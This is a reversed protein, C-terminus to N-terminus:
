NGGLAVAVSVLGENLVATAYLFRIGPLAPHFATGCLAAPNTLEYQGPFRPASRNSMDAKFLAEKITWLRLLHFNKKLKSRREIWDLESQQLFFRASRPNVERRAEFDVGTGLHKVARIGHMTVNAAFALDASHTLSFNQHPLAITSTDALLGSRLLLTKLAARGRKWSSLRSQVSFRSSEATENSTLDCCESAAITLNVSFCVQIGQESARNLRHALSEGLSIERVLLSTDRCQLM